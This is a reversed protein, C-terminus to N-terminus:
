IENSLSEVISNEGSECLLFFSHINISTSSYEQFTSDGESITKTRVDTWVYDCNTAVDRLLASYKNRMLNEQKTFVLMIFAIQTVRYHARDYMFM